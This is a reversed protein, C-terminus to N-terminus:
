TALLTPGRGKSKGRGNVGTVIDPSMHSAVTGIRYMRRAGTTGNDKMITLAVAQAPNVKTAATDTHDRHTGTAAYDIRETGNTIMGNTVDVTTASATGNNGVITHIGVINRSTQATALRMPRTTETNHM